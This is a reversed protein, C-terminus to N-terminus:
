RSAQPLKAPAPRALELRSADRHAWALEPQAPNRCELAVRYWAAAEGPRSEAAARVGFYYPAECPRSGETAADAIEEESGAGLVYRALQAEWSEQAGALGLHRAVRAKWVALPDALEKLLADRRAGREGRRVISTARLLILRDAFAADSPKAPFLEWLAEDLGEGYATTALQEETLSPPEMGLQKRLWPEAAPAGRATRLASWGALVVGAKKGPPIKQSLLACVEFAQAPAGAKTLAPELELISEPQIGAQLLAEAARKVEAAPRGRFAEAFRRGAERYEKRTLLAPAHALIDAAGADDHSRWRVEAVTVATEASPHRALYALLLNEADNKRGLRALAVTAMRYACVTETPLAREVMSLAEEHKGM